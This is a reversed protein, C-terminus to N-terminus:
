PNSAAPCVDLRQEVRRHITRRKTRCPLRQWWGYLRGWAGDGFEGGIGCENVKVLDLLVMIPLLWELNILHSHKNVLTIINLNSM